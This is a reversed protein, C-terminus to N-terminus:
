RWEAIWAQSTPAKHKVRFSVDFKRNLLLTEERTVVWVGGTRADSEAALANIEHEGDLEGKATYRQLGTRFLTLWVAGDRSAVSVHFPDKEGLAITKQLDGENDFSLFENNSNIVQPHRRVAVWVTGRTPDVALSSAYWTTIQKNVLVEGAVNVKALNRGAIWFSKSKQDYAIDWGSVNHVAIQKGKSDFVVTNDGYITGKTTLVWLNGSEADVALASADLDKVVLLEKGSRDFKRICHGVNELVWIVGRKPDDAVMHNSGISECNNLGSVRFAIKGESSISSLNDEYKEKGKYIPDCNDLVLIGTKPRPPAPATKGSAAFSAAFILVLLLFGFGIRDQKM